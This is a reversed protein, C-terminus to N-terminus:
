LGLALLLAAAALMRPHGVRDARGVIHPVLWRGVVLAAVLFGVAVGAVRAVGGVTVGEGAAVGSVVALIVLGIVGDSVAAGLGLVSTGLVVGALLEGLVAPQGLRHAVVAGLKAGGLMVVLLGLFTTADLHPM